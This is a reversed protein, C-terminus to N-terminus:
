GQFNPLLTFHLQFFFFMYFNKGNLGYKNNPHWKGELIGMIIYTNEELEVFSIIKKRSIRLVWVVISCAM